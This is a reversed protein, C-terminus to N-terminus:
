GPRQLIVISERTMTSSVQGPRNSPSNKSPMRKKPINRYLVGKAAIQLTDGMEMIIEDMKIVVDKVTRNGVVMIIHGRPRVAQVLWKMCMEFDSYFALVENARENDREAIAKLTMRLTQSRSAVDHRAQRSGGGGLLKSDLGTTNDDSLGFWQAPLRSFQGYAVTTRSDGYPPSTLILDVSDDEAHKQRSDGHVIRVSPPQSNGLAATFEAMGRISEVSKSFFRHLVDPAFDGKLKREDRFLKFERDRTFSVERIVESLSVMFFRKLNESRCCDLANKIRAIERSVGDSFWFSRNKFNPLAATQRNAAYEKLIESLSCLLTETGLPATKAQAIMVALPNLEIGFANRGLLLSEVLTTGSGCFPDLVHEGKESYELILKRALQPIFMAPYMHFGHSYFKTRSNRFDWEDLWERVSGTAAYNDSESQIPFADPKLTAILGDVDFQDNFLLETPESVSLNRKREEETIYQRPNCPSKRDSSSKIFADLDQKRFRRQGGPTRISSILKLNEMRYLTSPSVGIHAAAQRTGIWAHDEM